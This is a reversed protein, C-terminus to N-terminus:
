LANNCSLVFKPTRSLPAHHSRKCRGIGKSTQSPFVPINNHKISIRDPPSVVLSSQPVPPYLTDPFWRSASSQVPTRRPQIFRCPFRILYPCLHPRCFFPNVVRETKTGAGLSVPLGTNSTATTSAPRQGAPDQSPCHIRLTNERQDDGSLLSQQLRGVGAALRGETSGIVAGM